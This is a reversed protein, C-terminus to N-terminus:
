VSPVCDIALLPRGCVMKRVNRSWVKRGLIKVFRIRAVKKFGVNSYARISATNWPPIHCWVVEYGRLSLQKLSESILASGVGKRRHKPLVFTDYIMATRAPLRLTKEYDLIYVENVAIKIYGIIEKHYTAVLYIHEEEEKLRIEQPIYLWGFEAHHDRLWSVIREDPGIELGRDMERQTSKMPRSISRCFWFAENSSYALERCKSVIKRLYSRIGEGLLIEGSRLIYHRISSM